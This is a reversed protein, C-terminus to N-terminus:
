TSGSVSRLNPAPHRTLSKFNVLGLILMLPIVAIDFQQIGSLWVIITLILSGSLTYTLLKSVKNRILLPIYLLYLPNCWLIDLNNRIEPHGSFIWLLGLLVGVAGIILCLMVKVPKPSWFLLIVLLVSFVKLPSFIKQYSTGLDEPLPNLNNEGIVMGKNHLLAKDVEEEFSIPLFASQFRNSNSDMMKGLLMNVGLRLWPTRELYPNILDRNSAELTDKSFVADIGSLLDRLETSCNRNLFSYYYFRNEPLYLYNLRRVIAIEEEDTLELVQESVLRNESTYTQVFYPTPVIGLQYQLKGKLFKYAFNPTDFDFIGFNYVQDTDNQRDIVRM